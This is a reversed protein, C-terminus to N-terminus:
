GEDPEFGIIDEDLWSEIAKVAVQAMDEAAMDSEELWRNLDVM